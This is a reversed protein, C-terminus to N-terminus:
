KSNDDMQDVNHRKFRMTEIVPGIIPDNEKEAKWDDRLRKHVVIQTSKCLIDTPNYNYETLDINPIVSMMAKVTPADIILYKSRPIHSLADAEM